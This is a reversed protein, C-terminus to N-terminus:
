SAPRAAPSGICPRDRARQALGAACAAPTSCLLFNQAALGPAFVTTGAPLVVEAARAALLQRDEAPLAALLPFQDIWAETM